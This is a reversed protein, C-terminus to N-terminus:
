LPEYCPRRGSQVARLDRIDPFVVVLPRQARAKAV